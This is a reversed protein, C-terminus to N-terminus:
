PVWPEHSRDARRPRRALYGHRVYQYGRLKPVVRELVFRPPCM